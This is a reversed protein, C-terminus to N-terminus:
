RQRNIGIDSKQIVSGMSPECVSRSMRELEQARGSTPCRCSQGRINHLQYM